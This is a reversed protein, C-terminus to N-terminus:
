CLNAAPLVLAPGSYGTQSAMLFCSHTFLYVQLPALNLSVQPM